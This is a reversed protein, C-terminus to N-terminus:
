FKEAPNERIEQWRVAGADIAAKIQKERKSLQSKGTKIEVFVVERVDGDSLGSFVVLDVPSGLFRCDRPNFPFEPMFPALQETYKGRQIATSRVAADARIETEFDTKWQQLDAQAERQAIGREELKATWIRGEFERKTRETERATEAQIKERQDSLAQIVRCAIQEETFNPTSSITTPTKSHGIKRFFFWVVLITAAILSLGIIDAM